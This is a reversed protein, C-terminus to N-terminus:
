RLRMRKRQSILHQNINEGHIFGALWAFLFPAIMAHLCSLILAEGIWHVFNFSTNMLTNMWFFTLFQHLLTFTLVIIVQALFNEKFYKKRLYSIMYALGVLILANLGMPGGGATDQFLGIGFASWLSITNTKQLALFVVMLFILDPAIGAVELHPLLTTQVM